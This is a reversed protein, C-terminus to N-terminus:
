SLMLAIVTVVQELCVDVVRVNGWSGIPTFGRYAEVIGFSIDVAPIAKSMFRSVSCNRRHRTIVFVQWVVRKPWVLVQLLVARGSDQVKSMGLVHSTTALVVEGVACGEGGM